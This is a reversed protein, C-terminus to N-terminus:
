NKKRIFVVKLYDGERFAAKTRFDHPLRYEEIIEYEARERRFAERIFMKFKEIGVAAHNMSAVIVGNQNTIAIAEQLLDTYDKAASFTRKKSRAFSPPDLVVLDFSKQKRKAYKFYDFADMVIIEQSTPNIGNISFQESTKALSRKALDVSTTMKAGGLAAAVSFAGTYSFTNLVTKGNAYENRIRQRVDRQDLFVGVMPGDNLYIAFTVGNEKVYLPFEGREGMVFDDDPVYQGNAQFRKKEYIGHVNIVSPIAEYVVDRFSYIGESYWTCVLFGAYYDITIGGIGDGEGNFLRFATTENSTLLETRHAIAAQFRKKFFKVDMAESSTDTLVWGIGKNQKGYYGKAIFADREDVLTMITGEECTLPRDVFAAEILPYGKKLKDAAKRKLTVKIENRM